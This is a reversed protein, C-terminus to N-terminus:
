RRRPASCSGAVDGSSPDIVVAQGGLVSQAGQLAERYQAVRSDALVAVGAAEARGGWAGAVLAAAVVSAIRPV